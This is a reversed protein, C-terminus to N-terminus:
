KINIIKDFLDSNINRHSILILTINYEAKIKKIIKRECGTDIENMTEDLILIKRNRLLSRALLIKQKEGGSINQGNEELIFNLDINRDKLIKDVMTIKLVKNLEEDSVDKFMKINNLISDTFIYENQSVYCINDIIDKRSIYNIDIGDIYISKYSCNLQKTLLKFITSKGIGSQGNIFIFKGKKIEFNVNNLINNVDNYSYSLNRVSIKNKFILSTNKQSKNNERLLNNIRKTSNLADIITSDLRILNKLSSTLYLLLSNFAILDAFSMVGINVFNIGTFLIILEGFSTIFDQFLNIYLLKKNMIINDNLADSYNKEYKNYIDDEINLNKITNIGVISEILITNVNSMNEKNKMSLVKIQNRFFFYSLIFLALIFFLIVFLTKNIVFLLISTILVFLVDLISSFSIESIFNKICSLDNIRSVVDGVPRNHHYQIPLSLVKGYIKNTIDKDIKKNFDLLKSNRLIEIITKLVLFFTFIVLVFISSKSDYLKSFYFSNIGSLIICLSSFIFILIINSKYNKLYRILGAKHKKEKEKVINKTSDFTIIINTWEKSFDEMSYKLNGRIPDFIILKDDIIKDIIVFHYYNNEFQLHAIIPLKLSCLDNLECKYAKSILGLNNAANVMNYINTGNSDTKTLERLKNIDISGGYYKIINYLTCVGCDKLGEQKIYKHSM